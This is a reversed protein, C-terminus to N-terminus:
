RLVSKLEAESPAQQAGALHFNLVSWDLRQALRGGRVLKIRREREFDRRWARINPPPPQEVEVGRSESHRMLALPGGVEFDQRRRPSGVAEAGEAVVVLAGAEEEIVTESGEAVLVLGGADEAAEEAGEAVIVLAGAETGEGVVLAGAAEEAEVGEVSPLQLQAAPTPELEDLEEPRPRLPPVPVEPLALKAWAPDM